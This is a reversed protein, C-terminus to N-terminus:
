LGYIILSVAGFQLFLAVTWFNDSYLQIWERLQLGAKYWVNHQLQWRLLSRVQAAMDIPLTGVAFGEDTGCNM